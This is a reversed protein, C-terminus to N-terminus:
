KVRNIKYLGDSNRVIEENRDANFNKPIYVEKLISGNEDSLYITQGSQIKFDFIRNQRLPEIKEDNLSNIYDDYNKGYYTITSNHPFTVKKIYFKKLNNKDNSLYLNEIITENIGPNYLEIIDCNKDLKITKIVIDSYSEDTKTFLVANIKGNEAIRRNLTMEPETYKKGNIEWYDFIYGSHPKAKLIVSHEVFYCSYLDGAGSLKLTNLIIEANSSGKVNVDYTNGGLGFSRTMDEIVIGDRRQCFRLIANRSSRINSMSNSLVNRKVAIGIEYDHLEVIRDHTEEVSEDTFVTNILDFMQNCFKEQMDDRKMLANFTPSSNDNRIREITRESTGAWDGWGGEADYLLMRYKGDLYQNIFAGNEGAYRWMKKNNHPWDWNRGYIQLAYYQLYNDIDVEECFKEFLGASRFNASRGGPEQWEMYEILNKNDADYKDVFYEEPYFNQLWFFGYYEGNLFVAAPAFEKHDIFGAKKALDQAFEERMFAQGRDNAGNRLLLVKYDYIFTGYEDNRRNDNFFPYYLRDFVPDYEARAYVRLSKRDAARSWGGNVRIGGNQSILLKGDPKLVEIYAEREGEEKGRLNFNAADPPNPNQRPHKKQWEDRLKGEILIGYEYDFLNYPDSSISFVFTNEDFRDGIKESVFYTHTFVRSENDNSYAKFKLVYPTNNNGADLLIPESYKTGKTKSGGKNAKEKAPVSSDLTYYIEANEIDSTIEVYISATYFYNNHSLALNFPDRLVMAGNVGANEYLDSIRQEQGVSNTDNIYNKAIVEVAEQNEHLDNSKKQKNDPPLSIFISIISFIFVIVALSLIILYSKKTNKLFGFFNSFVSSNFSRFM